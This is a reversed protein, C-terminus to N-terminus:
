STSGLVIHRVRQTPDTTPHDSRAHAGRSETRASAAVSVALAVTRVACTGM